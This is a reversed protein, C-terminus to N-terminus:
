IPRLTQIAHLLDRRRFPKALHTDFGAELYDAIQNVLANATVAVAPIPPIAKATESARIERIASVGDMVPMSIDLLLFDFNQSQWAEIAAKGDNVSTLVAQTDSLMEELVLRNTASDDAILIRLGALSNVEPTPAAEAADVELPAECMPLTIKVSHGLASQNQQLSGERAAVLECIEESPTLALTPSSVEIVVPKKAKASLKLRLEHGAEQFPNEGLLNRVLTFILDCNGYRPLDCGLSGLAEFAGGGAEAKLSYYAELARLSDIPRFTVQEVEM